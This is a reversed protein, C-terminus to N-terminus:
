IKEELYKWNYGKYTKLRGYGSCVQYVAGHNFGDKEVSRLSPYEKIIQNTSLDLCLIKRRLKNPNNTISKSVKENRTGYNINYSCDCWELNDVRNNQKNEDKHNVQQYEFPNEIFARAVLQHVKKKKQQGNIFLGVICYGNSDITPKLIKQSINSYVNGLNSISYNPFEDIQKWIEKM